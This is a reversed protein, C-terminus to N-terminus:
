TSSNTHLLTHQTYHLSPATRTQIWHALPPSPLPLIEAAGDDARKAASEAAGKLEVQQELQQQQKDNGAGSCSCTSGSGSNNNYSNIQRWLEAIAMSMANVALPQRAVFSQSAPAAVIWYLLRYSGLSRPLQLSPVCHHLKCRCVSAVSCCCCCCGGSSPHASFCIDNSKRKPPASALWTFTFSPLLCRRVVAASALKWSFRDMGLSTARMEM